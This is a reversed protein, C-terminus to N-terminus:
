AERAAEAFAMCRARDKVGPSSEIGSSVDVGFPRVAVIADQVTEPTLGGALVLPGLRALAAARARDAAVGQGGGQPGDLLFAGRLGRVDRVRGDFGSARVADVVGEHDRFVPLFAMSEPLGEGSWGAHGQVGTLTLGQLQRVVAPNPERFVAWRQVDHPVASLLRPLDELSVQRPSPALVFGVADPRAAGVARLADLDRVGCLKVIM